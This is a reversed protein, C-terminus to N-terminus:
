QKKELNESIVNRVKASLDEYTEDKTQNPIIQKLFTVKIKEPKPIAQGYPLAKNSGDIVIPIIPINLKKSLIAFLPKFPLLKGDRTIAGEPFILLNKDKSLVAELKNLVQRLNKDINMTIININDALYKMLKSQFTEYYALSYTNKTMELPIISGLVQADLFSQHNPALIYNRDKPLNELGRVELKFYRKFSPNTIARIFQILKENTNGLDIEEMDETENIEAAKENIHTKNQKVYNYLDEFKMLASFKEGDINIGFVRDIFNQVDVKDISDLGLDLEIHSSLFVKKVLYIRM